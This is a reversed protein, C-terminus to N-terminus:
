KKEESLTSFKNSKVEKKDALEFRGTGIYDSALSKKVEKVVGNRVDKIKVTEM